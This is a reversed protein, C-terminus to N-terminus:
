ALSTAAPGFRPIVVGERVPEWVVNLPMGIELEAITVDVVNAVLRAPAADDLSVVGIVYPVSERLEPIIPHHIVTYTFLEGTGPLEVWEIAQSRCTPCFPGPPMRFSGCAACRACVLRHQAAADWFPQTWVDPNLAVLSVPPAGVQEDDFHLVRM